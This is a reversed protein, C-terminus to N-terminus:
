CEYGKASQLIENYAQHKAVKQFANLVINGKVIEHAKNGSIFKNDKDYIFSEMVSIETVEDIEHLILVNAAVDEPKADAQFTVALTDDDEDLFLIMGKVMFCHGQDETPYDTHLGLGYETLKDVIKAITVKM